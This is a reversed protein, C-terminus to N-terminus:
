SIKSLSLPFPAAVPQVWCQYNQQWSPQGISFERIGWFSAFGLSEIKVHVLFRIVRGQWGSLRRLGLQAESSGATHKHEVCRSRQGQDRLVSSSSPCSLLIHARHKYLVRTSHRPSVSMRSQLKLFLKKFRIPCLSWSQCTSKM